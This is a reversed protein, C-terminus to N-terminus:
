CQLSCDTSSVLLSLMLSLRCSMVADYSVLLPPESLASLHEAAVSMRHKANSPVLDDEYGCHYVVHACM